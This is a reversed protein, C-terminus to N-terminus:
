LSLYTNEKMGDACHRSATYSIYELYPSGRAQGYGLGGGATYFTVRQSRKSMLITEARRETVRVRSQKSLSEFHLEGFGLELWLSHVLLFENIDSDPRCCHVTYLENTEIVDSPPIIM